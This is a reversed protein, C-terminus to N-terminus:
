LKPPCALLIEGLGQCSKRTGNLHTASPWGQKRKKQVKDFMRTLKLGSYRGDVIGQTERLPFKIEGDKFPSIVDIFVRAM